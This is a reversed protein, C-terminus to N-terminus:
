LVVTALVNRPIKNVVLVRMVPCFTFRVRGDLNTMRIGQATFCNKGGKYKEFPLSKLITIFFLFFKVRYEFM